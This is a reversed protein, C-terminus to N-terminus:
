VHNAGRRVGQEELQRLTRRRGRSTLWVWIILAVIVAFTIGYSAAIFAAYPGSFLDTM